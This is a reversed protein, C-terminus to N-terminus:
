RLMGLLKGLRSMAAAAEKFGDDFGDQLSTEKGAIVGERYGEQLL